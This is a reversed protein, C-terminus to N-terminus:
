TGIVLLRIKKHHLGITNYQGDRRCVLINGSWICYFNWSFNIRWTQRKYKFSNKASVSNGRIMDEKIKGKMGSENLFSSIHHLYKKKRNEPSLVNPTNVFSSRISLPVLATSTYNQLLQMTTINQKSTTVLVSDIVQHFTTSIHISLNEFSSLVPQLMRPNSNDITWLSINIFINVHNNSALLLTFIELSAGFISM